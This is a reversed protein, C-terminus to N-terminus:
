ESLLGRSGQWFFAKFDPSGRGEYLASSTKTEKGLDM